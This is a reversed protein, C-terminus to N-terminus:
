SRRSHPGTANLNGRLQDVRVSCTAKNQENACTGGSVGRRVKRIELPQRSRDGIFCAVGQMVAVEKVRVDHEPTDLISTDINVETNRLVESSWPRLVVAEVFCDHIKPQCRWM